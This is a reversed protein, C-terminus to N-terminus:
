KKLVKVYENEKIIKKNIFSYNNVIISDNEIEVTLFGPHPILNHKKLYSDKSPCFMCFIDDSASPIFVKECIENKSISKTHYFHSHGKFCLKEEYRPLFLKFDDIQHKLSIVTGNWDFYSRKFGLINIDNRSSIIKKVREDKLIASYDHNGLIAYTNIENDFPYIDIFHNAQQIVTYKDTKSSKVNGELIDGGHLITSLSYKKAFEFIQDVYYRNELKSGYHTDSIIIIKKDSLKIQCFDNQLEKNYISKSFLISLLVYYDLSPYQKILSNFDYEKEYNKCVENILDDDIERFSKIM